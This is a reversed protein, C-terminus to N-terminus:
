HTERVAKSDPRRNEYMQVRWLVVPKRKKIKDFIFSVQTLKKLSQRTTLNDLDAVSKPINVSSLQTM